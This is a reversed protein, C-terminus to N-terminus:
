SSQCNINPISDSFNKEGRDICPFHTSSDTTDVSIRRPKNISNITSPPTASTRSLTREPVLPPIEQCKEQAETCDATLGNQQSRRTQTVSVESGFLSPEQAPSPLCNGQDLQRFFAQLDRTGVEDPDRDFMSVSGPILPGFQADYKPM